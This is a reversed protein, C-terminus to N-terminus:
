HRAIKQWTNAAFRAKELTDVLKTITIRDLLTEINNIELDMGNRFAEPPLSTIGLIIAPYLVGKTELPKPQINPPALFYHLYKGELTADYLKTGLYQKVILKPKTM